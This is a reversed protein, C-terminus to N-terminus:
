SLAQTTSIGKLGPFFGFFLLPGRQRRDHVRNHRTQCEGVFETCSRLCLGIVVWLFGRRREGTKQRSIRCLSTRGVRNQRDKKKEYIAPRQNEPWRNMGSIQANGEPEVGIVRIKRNREKLYRSVGMITGSTGISCVFHTIQGKTAAWIEPGTTRYHAMPNAPNSFQDLMVGKGESAMQLALDRAYQLGGSQPTLIIEAGYVGMSQQKFLATNEPMILICRYGRAAAQMALAIGTNGKSAEILTDGPHIAGSAEAEEIMSKVVRDKISASPNVCEWKGFILNGRNRASESLSRRLEILPTAGTTEEITTM